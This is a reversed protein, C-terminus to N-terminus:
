VMQILKLLLTLFNEATLLLTGNMQIWIMTCNVFLETGQDGQDPSNWETHKPCTNFNKMNDYLWEINESVKSYIGLLNPKACISQGNVDQRGSIVGVLTMWNNNYGM